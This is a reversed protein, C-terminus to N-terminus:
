VTLRWEKIYYSLSFLDSTDKVFLALNMVILAYLKQLEVDLQM